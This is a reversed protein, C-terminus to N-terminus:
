RQNGRWILRVHRRFLDRRFGSGRLLRVCVYILGPSRYDYGAGSRSSSSWRGRLRLHVFFLAGMECSQEWDEEDLDEFSSSGGGGASGDESQLAFPVICAGIPKVRQDLYRAMPEPNPVSFARGKTAYAALEPYRFALGNVAQRLRNHDLALVAACHM